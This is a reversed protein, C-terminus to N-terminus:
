YEGWRKTPTFFQNKIFKEVRRKGIRKTPALAELKGRKAPGDKLLFLIKEDVADIRM